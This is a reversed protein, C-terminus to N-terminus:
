ERIFVEELERRVALADLQNDSLTLVHAAMRKFRALEDVGISRRDSKAFGYVFVARVRARVLVIVRYGGSRGQGDRALRQKIVGGGLGADVLGREARDVAERLIDDSIGNARAFRVFWATKFIRM